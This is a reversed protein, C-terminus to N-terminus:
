LKLSKKIYRIYLGQSFLIASLIFGFDIANIAPSLMFARLGFAGLIPFIVFVIGIYDLFLQFAEETGPRFAAGIILLAFASIGILINVWTNTGTLMKVFASIVFLLIGTLIAVIPLEVFFEKFKFKTM